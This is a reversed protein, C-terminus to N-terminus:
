QQGFGDQARPTILFSFGHKHFGLGEYFRHAPERELHSSLVLKYCHRRACELMAFRMMQAGIGCSRHASHALGGVFALAFTGVVQGHLEAVYIQHREQAVLAKFRECAQATTLAAEGPLDLHRCLTLVQSLDAISAPRILM